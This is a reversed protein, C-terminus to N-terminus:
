LRQRHSSEGILFKMMRLNKPSSICPANTLYFDLLIPETGYTRPSPQLHPPSPQTRNIIAPKPTSTSPPKPTAGENKFSEHWPRVAFGALYPNRCRTGRPHHPRRPQLHPRPPSRRRNISYLPGLGLTPNQFVPLDQVKLEVKVSSDRLIADPRPQRIQVQPRYRDLAVKLQAIAEPSVETLEM